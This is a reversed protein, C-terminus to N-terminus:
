QTLSGPTVSEGLEKPEGPSIRRYSALKARGNRSPATSSADNCDSCVLDIHAAKGTRKRVGRSFPLNRGAAARLWVSTAVTFLEEIRVAVLQHGDFDPGISLGELM